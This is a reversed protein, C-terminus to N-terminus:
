IKMPSFKCLFDVMKASDEGKIRYGDLGLFRLGIKLAGYLQFFKLQFRGLKFCYFVLDWCRGRRKKM